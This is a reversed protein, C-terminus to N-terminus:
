GMELEALRARVLGLVRAKAKYVQNATLNTLTGVESVSKGDLVLMQFVRYDAPSVSGRVSAVCYKLHEQHWHREWLEDPSPDPARLAQVAQSDAHKERRKRLYDVLKSNAVTCLWNKFGGKSKSYSFDPIKRTVIELCQDRVEEAADRPLGRARVYRYILPAYLKHFESWATRDAYDKVRRL